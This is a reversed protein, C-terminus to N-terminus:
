SRKRLIIIDGWVDAPEYNNQIHEDLPNATDYNFKRVMAYNILITSPQQKKIEQVNAEFAEPPDMSTLLVDHRYPSDARLEFYMGPLFPHAYMNGVDYQKMKEMFAQHTELYSINTLIRISMAPAIGIIFFIGIVIASAYKKGQVMGLLETALYALLLICGFFNILIHEVNPHLFISALLGIQAVVLVAFADRGIRDRRKWWILAVSLLFLTCAIIFSTYSVYTIVYHKSPWVILTEYLLKPGWKVMMALPVVTIGAFLFLASQIRTKAFFVYGVALAMFGAAMIVGKTQLFAATIGVLSGSLFYDTLRQSALAKMFFYVAIVAVFASHSNYNILPFGVSAVFLWLWSGFLAASRKNFLLLSIRYAAYVSALLLILSFAKASWYSPGLIDFSWQTVYYSGPAFFSFFDAYLTQGYLMKWAGDLVVGEDSDLPHGFNLLVATLFFLLPIM